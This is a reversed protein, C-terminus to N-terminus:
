IRVFLYVGVCLPVLGLITLLVSFAMRDGGKMCFKRNKIVAFTPNSGGVIGCSETAGCNRRNFATVVM